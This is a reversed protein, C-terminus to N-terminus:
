TRCLMLLSRTHLGYNQFQADQRLGMVRVAATGTRKGPALIAGMLFVRAPQFVPTSCLPAVAVLLAVCECPM